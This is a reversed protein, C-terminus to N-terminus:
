SVPTPGVSQVPVPITVTGAREFTLTVPYTPGAHLVQTVGGLVIRATASLRTDAPPPGVPGPDSGVLRIANDGPIQTVGESTVVSAYPTSVSVLRDGGPAENVLTARLTVTAGAPVVATTGPDIAADRVLMEGVQAESGTVGTLTTDTQTVAGASCGALALGAVLAAACTAARVLRAPRRRSM